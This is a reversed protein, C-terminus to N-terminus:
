CLVVSVKATITLQLSNTMDTEPVCHIEFGNVTFAKYNSIRPPKACVIYGFGDDTGGLLNLNWNRKDLLTDPSNDFDYNFMGEAMGLLTAVGHYFAPIDSFTLKRKLVNIERLRAELCAPATTM